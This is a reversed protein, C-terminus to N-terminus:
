VSDACRELENQIDLYSEISVAGELLLKRNGSFGALWPHAGSTFVPRGAEAALRATMWSGSRFQAQPVWVGQSFGVILRNRQHFYWKKMSEDPHYESVVLGGAGLLAPLWRRNELPYPRALGSPLFLVTPKDKRISAFHAQRDVGRAGGSLTVLGPYAELWQHLQQDLWTLLATDAERSGVIAIRLPAQLASVQGMFCLARPADLFGPYQNAPILVFFYGREQYRKLQDWQHIWYEPPQEAYSGWFPNQVFFDQFPFQTAELEGINALYKCCQQWDAVSIAQNQRSIFALVLQFFHANHTPIIM